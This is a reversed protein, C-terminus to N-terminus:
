LDPGITIHLAISKNNPTLGRALDVRVLGVPSRWRLGIGISYDIPDGWNNFANGFDSFVAAGWNKIFMHEYEVSGVALYRGGVVNGDPGKPGQSQYDYGRISTDGGAFFRLSSPLQEFDSVATAGIVGRTILRGQPDLGRILKGRLVVQGFSIDSLLSESAGSLSLSLKAGHRTYLTNDAWIRDWSIGPILLLSTNKDVSVDYSEDLLKLSGTENWGWRQRKYFSGVAISQSHSTDTTERKVETNFGLTTITPSWYPMLYNFSLSDSIQSIKADATMRHGHRNVYRNEWGLSMRAGTDTGYGVGASYHHKPEPQLSIDLPITEDARKATVTAVSASKFYGSNTLNNRLALVQSSQFPDGQKFPVFNQLFDNTVVTQPFQITGFHYRKGSQYALTVDATNKDKYVKVEHKLLKGDFYGQSSALRLLSKKASEYDQQNFVQGSKLPFDKLLKKFEDDNKAEGSVTIDVKDLKVPEGLTVQYSASWQQDKHKLTSKVEAHYYGFVQLMTKIEEPAQQNLREIYRTTLRPSDQQRAISLGALLTQKIADSVGSLSVSIAKKDAAYANITHLTLLTLVLMVSWCFKNKNLSGEHGQIKTGVAHLM